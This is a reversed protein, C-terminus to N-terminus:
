HVSTSELYKSFNNRMLYYLYKPSLIKDKVVIRYARQHLAYKGTIFHFVKGVGVGDGATIIATEDFEYENIAKPEQSRVFFPYKGELVAENTNRSGTGIIAVEGLRKWEVEGEEFSLLKERYYNYQKKR